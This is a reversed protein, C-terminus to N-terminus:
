EVLFRVRHGGAAISLEMLRSGDWPDDMRYAVKVRQGAVVDIPHFPLFTQEWHTMPASPSTDLVVSPSLQSSFWGMFGNLVGDREMTFEVEGRGWEDGPRAAFTKLHHISKGEALLIEDSLALRKSRGQDLESKVFCSFDIGHVDKEWYGAGYEYFLEGGDTPALMVDVASPLMIGEPKLHARRVAIVVDLMNEVYAMHGLWESVIVDAQEDLVLDHADGQFVEVRDQLGNHAILRRAHEAMGSREVAIVRRAGAKAAFLSLVGTGAGVDIVVDGPKVAEAIANAFATTRTEDSVMWRQQELSAYNLFYQEM